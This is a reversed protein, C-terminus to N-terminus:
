EVLTNREHSQVILVLLASVILRVALVLLEAHRELVAQRGGAAEAEADVAEHHQERAVRVDAYTM